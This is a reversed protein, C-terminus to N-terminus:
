CTGAAADRPASARMRIAAAALGGPRSGSSGRRSGGISRTAAVRTSDRSVGRGAMAGSDAGHM